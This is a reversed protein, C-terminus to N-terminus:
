GLCSMGVRPPDRELALRIRANLEDLREATVGGNALSDLANGLQVDESVHNAVWRRALAYWHVSSDWCTASVKAGRPDHACAVAGGSILEAVSHGDEIM